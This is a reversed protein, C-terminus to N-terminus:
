EPESTTNEREPATLPQAPIVRWRWFHPKGRLEVLGRKALIRLSTMPRYIGRPPPRWEGDAGLALITHHVPRLRDTEGPLALLRFGGIERVPLHEPLDVARAIVPM